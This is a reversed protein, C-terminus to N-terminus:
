RFAADLVMSSIFLTPSVLSREEEYQKAISKISSSPELDHGLEKSIIYMALRARDDNKFNLLDNYLKNWESPTARLMVSLRVQQLINELTPM